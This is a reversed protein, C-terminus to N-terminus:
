KKLYNGKGPFLNRVGGIPNEVDGAYRPILHIHAHPITQGATEGINIGVNFGEPSFCEQLIQKTRNLALNCAFHTHTSLQFYDPKHQKPIILAHGTSVPYKDLIAYATASETILERSAEPACFPCENNRQFQNFHRYEYIECFDNILISKYPLKVLCQYTPKKHEKHIRIGEHRIDRRVTLYARGTPKLLESIQMLIQSQEKPEVVNLVYHCIITDFKVKPIEPQYYNDYEQVNFGKSKLFKGDAGYGSGFDLIEGNLLKERFLHKTPWSPSTREKATLHPFHKAM